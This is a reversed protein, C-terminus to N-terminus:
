SRSFLHFETEKAKVIFSMEPSAVEFTKSDLPWCSVTKFSLSKDLRRAEWVAVVASCTSRAAFTQGDGLSSCVATLRVAAIESCTLVRLCEMWLAIEAAQFYWGNYIEFLTVELHYLIIELSLRLFDWTFSLFGTM